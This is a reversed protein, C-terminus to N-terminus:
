DLNKNKWKRYEKSRLESGTPLDRELGERVLRARDAISEGQKFKERKLEKKLKRDSMDGPNKSKSFLGM